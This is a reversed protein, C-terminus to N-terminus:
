VARLGGAARKPVSQAPNIFQDILADIQDEPVGDAYRAQLFTNEEESLNRKIAAAIRMMAAIASLKPGEIQLHAPAEIEDGQKPIFNPMEVKQLYSHADLKNAFPTAKRNRAAKVEDKDMDPYAMADMAKAAHEIATDPMAKYEEGIVSGSLSQGFRDYNRDPEIRYTLMEGDYRPAQIQIACDGYVMPRVQVKDGVNVGDLDRLSYLMSRESDPHKFDISLNPKVKREQERAVMLARCVEIAPLLRLQAATVLQWLDYRSVPQLLGDRRLRTDQGPILNANYANAWAFARENLEGIDTVPEFRLRSEFQTEVINNGNEVGGKARSNGAEHELPTVELHVLLNKIAASTNATGKDWLVFKPVGHFLRGPTVSWCFMLFDFLSHQNEGLAEVYWPVLLGSARDYMVYRYVKFKVKAYNELKNKYFERDRMMHQKGNMYYILCLSPDIEHVHNPHLARLSQVPSVNRQAAVNLKRDRILKNLHGNSVNFAVGNQELMGRATTTFLTQKGNDRIAERQVAGLITLAEAAVSTKGKDARAKRAPGWGCASKLKRYITQQSWGLFGQAADMIPGRDGHGAADLKRALDCLYDRIDPSISTNVQSERM